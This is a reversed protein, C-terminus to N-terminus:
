TITYYPSIIWQLIKASIMEATYIVSRFDNWRYWQCQQFQVFFIRYNIDRHFKESQWLRSKLPPLSLGCIETFLRHCAVSWRFFGSQVNKGAERTPYCVLPSFNAPKSIGHCGSTLKYHGPPVVLIPRPCVPHWDFLQEGRRYWILRHDPTVSLLIKV